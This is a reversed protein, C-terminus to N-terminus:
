DIAEGKPLASLIETYNKDGTTFGFKNQIVFLEDSFENKVKGEKWHNWPM